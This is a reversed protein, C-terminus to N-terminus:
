EISNKVHEYIANMEEETSPDSTLEFLYIGGEKEVYLYYEIIEYTSDEYIYEFAPLGNISIERFIKEGKTNGSREDTRKERDRDEQAADIISDSYKEEFVRIVGYKKASEFYTTYVKGFESKEERWDVGIDFTLDGYSANKWKMSSNGCGVLTFLILMALLASLVKKVDDEQNTIDATFILKYM